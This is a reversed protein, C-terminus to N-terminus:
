DTIVSLCALEIVILYRGIIIKDTIICEHIMLVNQRIFTWPIYSMSYLIIAAIGKIVIRGQIILIKIKEQSCKQKFEVKDSILTNQNKNKEHIIEKIIKRM